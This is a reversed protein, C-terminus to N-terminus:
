AGSLNILLLPLADSKHQKAFSDERVQMPTDGNIENLKSNAEIHLNHHPFDGTGNGTRLKIDYM